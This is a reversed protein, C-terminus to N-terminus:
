FAPWREESLFDHFSVEDPSSERSLGMKGGGSVDESMFSDWHGRTRPFVFTHAKVADCLESKFGFGGKQAAWRGSDTVNHHAATMSIKTDSGPKSCACRRSLKKKEERVATNTLSRSLM